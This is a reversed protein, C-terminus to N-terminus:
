RHNSKTTNTTTYMAMDMHVSLASLAPAYQDTIATSTSADTM